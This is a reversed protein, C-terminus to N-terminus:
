EVCSGGGYGFGWAYSKESCPAGGIRVAKYIAESIIEFIYIVQEDSGLNMNDKIQESNTVAYQLIDLRLKNDAMLRGVYGGEGKHYIKDHEVCAQEFPIKEAGAFKKAFDESIKSLGSITKSWAESVNGSCGDTEFESLDNVKKTNELAILNESEKNPYPGISIEPSIMQLLMLVSILLIIGVFIKKNDKEM